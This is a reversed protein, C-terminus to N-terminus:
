NDHWWKAKKMKKTWNGETIIISGYDFCVFKGNLLGFNEYKTDAFFAPIETPYQSDPIKDVKDQIVFMGNPSIHHIPAFWKAFYPANMIESWIRAEVVNQFREGNGEHKVVKTKDIELEYVTRCSGQGIIKGLFLDCLEVASIQRNSIEKSLHTTM